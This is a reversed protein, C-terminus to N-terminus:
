QTIARSLADRLVQSFNIGQAEAKENLGKPIYLTKRVPKESLRRKYEALNISILNYFVTDSSPEFSGLSSPVPLEDGDEEYSWLLGGLCDEAMDLADQLSRGETTAGYLDPFTVVYGDGDTFKKFKAPYVYRM